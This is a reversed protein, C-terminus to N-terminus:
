RPIFLQLAFQLLYWIFVAYWLRQIRRDSHLFLAVIGFLSGALCIGGAVYQVWGLFSFSVILWTLATILLHGVWNLLIVLGYLKVGTPLINRRWLISIVLAILILSVVGAAGVLQVAELSNSVEIVVWGVLGGVIGYWARYPESYRTLLSRELCFVSVALMGVVYLLVGAQTEFALRFPILLLSLLERLVLLVVVCLLGDVIKSRFDRRIKAIVPPM